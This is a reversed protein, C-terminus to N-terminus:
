GNTTTEEGPEVLVNIRWELESIQLKMVEIVASSSPPDFIMKVKMFIFSKIMELDTMNPLYDSWTAVKDKISFNADGVGMQNLINLVTNIHLIIDPDFSTYAENIGLMKKISTLISDM